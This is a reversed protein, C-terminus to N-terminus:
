LPNIIVPGFAPPLVITNFVIPSRVNAICDPNWMSALSPVSNETNLFNNTSIPSLWLTSFANLVNEDWTFFRASIILSLVFDVSNNNSSIPLPVSGFSPDAKAIAINSSNYWM